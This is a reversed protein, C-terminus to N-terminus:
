WGGYKEGHGAGSVHDLMEDSLEDDAAVGVNDQPDITMLLDLCVLLLM